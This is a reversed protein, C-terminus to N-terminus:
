SGGHGSSGIRAYSFVTRAGPARRRTPRVCSAKPMVRGARPVSTAVARASPMHHDPAGGRRSGLSASARREVRARLAAEDAVAHRTAAATGASARRAAADQCDVARPLRSRSQVSVPVLCAGPMWATSTSSSRTVARRGDDQGLPMSRRNRTSGRVRRYRASRDTSTRTRSVRSATRAYLSRAPSTRTAPSNREVQQRGRARVLRAPSCGALPLRVSDGPSPAEGVLMPSLVKPLVPNSEREPTGLKRRDASRHATFVCRHLQPPPGGLM